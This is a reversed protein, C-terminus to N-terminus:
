GLPPITWHRCETVIADVRFDHDDMPVESVLQADFALALKFPEKGAQEKYRRMFADYYGGGYGLRGGKSDFALGPVVVVDIDSVYPWVPASMIPERIGWRGAELDAFSGIAHLSMLKENPPNGRFYNSNAACASKVKPPSTRIVKPVIVTGDREWCWEILPTVDLETRFPVYSFMTFSLAEGVSFRQELLRIATSCARASFVARDADSLSARVADARKRLEAKLAHVEM